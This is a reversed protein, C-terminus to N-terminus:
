HERKFTLTLKLGAMNPPVLRMTNSDVFEVQHQTRQQMLECEITARQSAEDFTLLRWQGSKQTQINPLDTVTDLRGNRYFQLRISYDPAQEAVPKNGALDLPSAEDALLRDPLMASSWTGIFRGRSTDCGGIGLVFAIAALCITSALQNRCPRLPVGIMLQHSEYEAMTLEKSNLLIPSQETFTPVKAPRHRCEAAPQRCPNAPPFSNQQQCFRGSVFSKNIIATIASSLSASSFRGSPRDDKRCSVARPQRSRQIQPNASSNEIACRHSALKARNTVTENLPQM